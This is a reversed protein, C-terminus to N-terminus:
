FQKVQKQISKLDKESVLIESKGIKIISQGKHYFNYKHFCMYYFDNINMKRYDSNQFCVQWLDQINTKNDIAEQWFQDQIEKFTKNTRKNEFNKSLKLLEKLLEPKVEYFVKEPNSDKRILGKSVLENYQDIATIKKQETVEQAEKNSLLNGYSDYIDEKNNDIDFDNDVVLSLFDQYGQFGGNYIVGISLEKQDSKRLIKKVIHVDSGKGHEVIKSDGLNKYEPHSDRLILKLENETIKVIM